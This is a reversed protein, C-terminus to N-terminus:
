SEVCVCGRQLQPLSAASIFKGLEDPLVLKLGKLVTSLVGAGISQKWGENNKMPTMLVVTAVALLIIAGRVLGFAAGLLRDLGSLGVSALMKRVLWALLTSAMLTGIFALVFGAAYRLQPVDGQMPLWQGVTTAFMQAVVFAAIWGLVSLVEVVLGRWLGILMSLLLVALFIWDLTGISM